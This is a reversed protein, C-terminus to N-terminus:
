ATPADCAITGSRIAHGDTNSDDSWFAPRRNAVCEAIPALAFGENNLNAMGVPRDFVTTPHYAGSADVRLVTTRGQCGDDCVAWLNGLDPDFQLDM